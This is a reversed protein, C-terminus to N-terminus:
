HHHFHHHHFSHKKKGSSWIKQNEFFDKSVIISVALILDPEELDEFFDLYKRIVAFDYKQKGWISNVTTPEKESSRSIRVIPKECNSLLCYDFLMKKGDFFANEEDFTIRKGKPFDAECDMVYGTIIGVKKKENQAGDSLGEPDSEKYARDLYVSIEDPNKGGRSLYLTKNNTLEIKRSTKQSLVPAASKDYVISNRKARPTGSVESLKDFKENWITSHGFAIQFPLFEQSLNYVKKLENEQLFKKLDIYKQREALGKETLELRVSTSQNVFLIAFFIGLFFLTGIIGALFYFVAFVVLGVVLLPLNKFCNKFFKVWYAKTFYRGKSSFLSYIFMQKEENPSALGAKLADLKAFSLVLNYDIFKDIGSKLNDIARGSFLEDLIEQECYSFEGVNSTLSLKGDQYSIKGRQILDVITAIVENYEIVGDVLFGAMAPKLDSVDFETM